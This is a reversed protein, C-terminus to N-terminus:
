FNELMRDFAAQMMDKSLADLTQRKASQNYLANSTNIVPLTIQPASYNTEQKFGGSWLIESSGKKKLVLDVSAIVKYQTAIVTETPLYKTNKAEIVSEDAIVDISVIRGQLIAEADKEENKLQIFNSRLAESKLSNTFFTEIGVESSDNKFLPIQISKVNGPLSESESSLKYACGFFSFQM